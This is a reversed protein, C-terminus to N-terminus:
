LQHRGDPQSTRPRGNRSTGGSLRTIKASAVGAAGQMAPHDAIQRYTRVLQEYSERGARSGLVYGIVGGLLFRWM